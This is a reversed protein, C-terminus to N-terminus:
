RTTFPLLAMMRARKLAKSVVRQHRLCNGSAKRADIKGYGSLYKQLLKVDKYDVYDNKEGCFRCTKKPVYNAM